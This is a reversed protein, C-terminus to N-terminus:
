ADSGAKAQKRAKVFHYWTEYGAERAAKELGECHTGAGSKAFVKAAKKLKGELSQTPPLKM